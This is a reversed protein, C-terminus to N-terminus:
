RKLIDSLDNLLKGSAVVIVKDGPQIADDGSPIITKRNRLIGAILIGHRLSLNRLPIGAGAFDAAVAFELAEAKGEAINYLTEIKGGRSNHLARAYQTIRDAVTKRPNVITDVGLTEALAALEKRNVKAIVKPVNVSSAFAALLINEEDMGTLAVFADISRIGEELLFEQEAGDACMVTCGPLSEAILEARKRDQEIIKVSNGIFSLRRALYYSTRSGGLIMINRAQKKTLNLQKLIKQVESATAAIGIQDGQQLVFRGDPIHVEGGRQVTCILYRGKYKSRMESLQIGHLPSDPKLRLAVMEFNRNSFTEVKVASPLKLLNFLERAALQEPNIAMSLEVNQKLFELSRDNYDTDRVRAITHHAGLRRAFLCSLMNLEDSSTVAIFIDTNAADAEVLIDSDGANGCVGIVEYINMMENIRNRDSDIVTVDHGEKLMSETITVGIKGCGAILIKM